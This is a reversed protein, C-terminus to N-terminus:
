IYSCYVFLYWSHLNEEGKHTAIYRNEYEGYKKLYDFLVPYYDQKSIKTLYTLKINIYESLEKRM